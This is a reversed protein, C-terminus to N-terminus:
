YLQNSSNTVEEYKFYPHGLKSRLVNNGTMETGKTLFAIQPGVYFNFLNYNGLCIGVFPSLVLYEANSKVSMAINYNSTDPRRSTNVTIDAQEYSIAAGILKWEGVPKLVRFSISPIPKGDTSRQFDNTTRKLVKHSVIGGQLSLDLQGYSSVSLTCAIAFLIIRM